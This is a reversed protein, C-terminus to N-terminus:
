AGVLCNLMYSKLMAVVLDPVLLLINMQVVHRSVGVKM